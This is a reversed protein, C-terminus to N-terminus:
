EGLDVVGTPIGDVAIAGEPDANERAGRGNTGADQGLDGTGEKSDVGASRGEADKLESARSEEVLGHTLDGRFGGEEVDEEVVELGSEFAGGPPIKNPCSSAPGRGGSVFGVGIACRSLTFVLAM